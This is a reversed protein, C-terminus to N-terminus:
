VRRSPSLGQVVVSMSSSTGSSCWWYFEGIQEKGMAFPPLPPPSDPFRGIDQLRPKLGRRTRLAERNLNQAVNETLVIESRPVLPVSLKTNHVARMDCQRLLQISTIAPAHSAGRQQAKVKDAQPSWPRKPSTGTRSSTVLTLQITLTHM